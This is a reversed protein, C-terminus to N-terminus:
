SEAIDFGIRSRDPALYRICDKLGKTTLKSRLSHLSKTIDDASLLGSMRSAAQHAPHKKKWEEHWVKAEKAADDRNRYHEKGAKARELLFWAVLLDRGALKLPRQEVELIGTVTNIHVVPPGQKSQKLEHSYRNVLAGFSLSKENLEKFGNRLPVFPIDALEISADRANVPHTSKTRLDFSQLTQVIQAPYFFGRTTDFPDSVLVHTVRDTEKAVLSMSAYLLAGMTKRGGAISAIVHHDTAETLPSLTQLIFDAAEANEQESRLDHAKTKVGSKADPLEIVRVSLQLKPCDKPLRAKTFIDKRLHTWVSKNKWEKSPKLLQQDIDLEGKITTIVVVDDPVVPPSEDALKWLTETIIAPSMGSVAVLITKM